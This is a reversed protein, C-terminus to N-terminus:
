EGWWMVRVCVSLVIGLGGFGLWVVNLWLPDYVYIYFAFNHLNYFFIYSFFRHSKPNPFSNKSTVGVTQKM